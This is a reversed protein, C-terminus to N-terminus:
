KNGESINYSQSLRCRVIHVLDRLSRIAIVVVNDTFTSNPMSQWDNIRFSKIKLKNVNAITLIEMDFGWGLITLQTFCLRTAQHNFMKFGCQSDEIWLGGALRFLVNGLNSISRRVLNPHHKLLNRTGVVIDYGAECSKYIKELHHLPTALDADMFIVFKGRARLMGYQVDRGKGVRSGPKLFVFSKFQYKKTEVIEHTRDGADAAVVIVEVEKNKFYSDYKLFHALRDLTSAIRKEELYAPIVISLDIPLLKLSTKIPSM